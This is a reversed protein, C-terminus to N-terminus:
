RDFCASALDSSRMPGTVYNWTVLICLAMGLTMLGTATRWENEGLIVKGKVYLLRM